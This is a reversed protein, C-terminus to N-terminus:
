YGTYPTKTNSLRLTITRTGDVANIDANFRYDPLQIISEISVTLDSADPYFLVPNGDHRHVRLLREWGGAGNWGTIANGRKDRSVTEAPIGIVQGDLIFETGTVWADVVGSRTQTYESSQLNRSWSLANDIPFGFRVLNNAPNAGWGIAPTKDRYIGETIPGPGPDPPDPFAFLATATEGNSVANIFAIGDTPDAPEWEYNGFTSDFTLGDPTDFRVSDSGATLTVSGDTEWARPLVQDSVTNIRVIFRGVADPLTNSHFLFIEELSVIGFAADFAPSPRPAWRASRQRLNPNNQDGSFVSVTAAGLNITQRAM